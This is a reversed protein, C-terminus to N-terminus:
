ISGTVAVFATFGGFVSWLAAATALALYSRKRVFGVLLVAISAFPVAVAAILGPMGMPAPGWAWAFLIPGVLSLLLLQGFNAFNSIRTPPVPLIFVLVLAVIAAGALFAAIAHVARLAHM